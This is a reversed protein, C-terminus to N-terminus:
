VGSFSTGVMQMRYGNLGSPTCGSISVQMCPMMAQDALGVMYVSPMFALFNAYLTTSLPSYIFNEVLNNEYNQMTVIFSADCSCFLVTTSKGGFPKSSLSAEATSYLTAISFISIFIITLIKKIM